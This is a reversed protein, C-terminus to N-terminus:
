PRKLLGCHSWMTTEEFGDGPEWDTRVRRGAGLTTPRRTISDLGYLVHALNAPGQGPAIQAVKPLLGPLLSRAPLATDGATHRHYKSPVERHVIDRGTFCSEDSFLPPPFSFYDAFEARDIAIVFAHSKNTPNGYHRVHLVKLKTAWGVEHFLKRLMKVAQGGDLLATNGVNEMCAIKAGSQVM